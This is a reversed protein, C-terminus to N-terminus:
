QLKDQLKEFVHYNVGQKLFAVNLYPLLADQLIDTFIM